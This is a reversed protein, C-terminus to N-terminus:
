AEDFGRLRMAERERVNAIEDIVTRIGPSRLAALHAVQQYAFDRLELFPSALELGKASRQTYEL